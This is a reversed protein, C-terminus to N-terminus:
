EDWKADFHGGTPVSGCERLDAGFFSFIYPVVDAPSWSWRAHLLYIDSNSLLDLYIQYNRKIFDLLIDKLLREEKEDKTLIKLLLYSFFDMNKKYYLHLKLKYDTFSLLNVKM